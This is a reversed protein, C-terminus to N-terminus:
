NKIIRLCKVRVRSGEVELVRRNIRESSGKFGPGRSGKKEYRIVLLWYSVDMM